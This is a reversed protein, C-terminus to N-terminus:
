VIIETVRPEEVIRLNLRIGAKSGYVRIVTRIADITKGWRWILSGMDSPAVRLSLLTGLEDKKETIEILATETVIASVIFELYQTATM